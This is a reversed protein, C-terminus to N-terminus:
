CYWYVGIGRVGVRIDVSDSSSRRLLALIPYPWWTPVSSTMTSSHQCQSGGLKLTQISVNHIGVCHGKRIIYM